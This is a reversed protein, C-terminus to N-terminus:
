QGGSDCVAGVEEAGCGAGRAQKAEHYGNFSNNLTYEGRPSEWFPKLSKLLLGGCIACVIAWDCILM